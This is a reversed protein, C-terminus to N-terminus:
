GWNDVTGHGNVDPDGPLLVLAALLTASGWRAASDAWGANGVLWCAAGASFAPLIWWLHHASRAADHLRKAAMCGLPYANVLALVLMAPVGFAYVSSGAVKSVLGWFVVVGYWVPVSVLAALFLLGAFATRSLRGHRSLVVGRLNLDLLERRLEHRFELGM